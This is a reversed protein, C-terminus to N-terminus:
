NSINWVQNNAQVPVVALYAVVWTTDHAPQGKYHAEIIEQDVKIRSNISGCM